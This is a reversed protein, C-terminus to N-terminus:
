EELRYNVGVSLTVHGQTMDSPFAPARAGRVMTLAAQDLVDSGSSRLVEASVVDGSAAVTMRLTVQGEIGRRKADDPYNKRRTLWSSLSARWSGSVAPAAQPAPAAPPAAGTAPRSAPIPAPMAMPAPAAPAPQALPAPNPAPRPPAPRPAPKPPIPRPQVPRPAPPTAPPPPAPLPPAPPPAPDAPVPTTAVPPAPEPAPLQSPVPPLPAPPLPDTPPAPDFMDPEPTIVRPAPAEFVMEVTPPPPVTLLVSRGLLVATLALAGHVALSPLLRAPLSVGRTLTRALAMSPDATLSPM